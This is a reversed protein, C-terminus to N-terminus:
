PWSRGTGLGACGAWGQLEQVGLCVSTTFALVVWSTGGEDVKFKPSAPNANGGSRIWLKFHARASSLWQSLHLFPVAKKWSAAKPQASEGAQGWNARGACAAKSM